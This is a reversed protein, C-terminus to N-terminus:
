RLKKKGVDHILRHYNNKNDTQMGMIAYKFVFFPIM